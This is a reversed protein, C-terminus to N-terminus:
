EEKTKPPKEPTKSKGDLKFEIADLRAELMTLRQAKTWPKEPFDKPVNYKIGLMKEIAPVRRELIKIRDAKTLNSSM